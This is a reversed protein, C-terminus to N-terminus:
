VNFFSFRRPRNEASSPQKSVKVVNKLCRCRQLLDKNTQVSMRFPFFGGFCWHLWKGTTQSGNEKKEGANISFFRRSFSCPAM